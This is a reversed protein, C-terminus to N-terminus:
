FHMFPMRAPMIVTDDDSRAYDKYRTSGRCLSEAELPVVVCVRLSNTTRQISPFVFM